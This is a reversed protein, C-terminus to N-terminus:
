KLLTESMQLRVVHLLEEIIWTNWRQFQLHQFVFAFRVHLNTCKVGLDVLMLIGGQMGVLSDFDRMEQDMVSLRQATVVRPLQYLFLRNFFDAQDM